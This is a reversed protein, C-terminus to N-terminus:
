AEDIQGPLTAERSTLKPSNLAPALFPFTGSVGKPSMTWLRCPVRMYFIVSGQVEQVRQQM